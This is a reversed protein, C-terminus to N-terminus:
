SHAASCLRALPAACLTQPAIVTPTRAVIVV